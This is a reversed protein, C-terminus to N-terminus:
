FGELPITKLDDRDSQSGDWLLKLKRKETESVFFFGETKCANSVYM